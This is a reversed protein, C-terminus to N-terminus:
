PATSVAPTSELQEARSALFRVADALHCWIGVALDPDGDDILQTVEMALIELRPPVKTALQRAAAGVEDWSATLRARDGTEVIAVTSQSPDFSFDIAM